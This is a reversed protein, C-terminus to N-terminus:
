NDEWALCPCWEGTDDSYSLCEGDNDDHDGLSHGCKCTPQDQPM